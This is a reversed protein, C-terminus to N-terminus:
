VNKVEKHYKVNHILEELRGASKYAKYINRAKRLSCNLEFALERILTEVTM